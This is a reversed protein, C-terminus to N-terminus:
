TMHNAVQLFPLRFFFAKAFFTQKRVKLLFYFTRLNEIFIKRVSFEFKLSFIGKKLGCTLVLTRM